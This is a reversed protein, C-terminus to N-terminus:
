IVSIGTTKAPATWLTTSQQPMIVSRVLRQVAGSSPVIRCLCFSDDSIGRTVTIHGIIGKLIARLIGKEQDNKTRVLRFHKALPYLATM